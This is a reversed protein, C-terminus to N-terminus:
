RDGEPEKVKRLKERHKKVRREAEQRQRWNDYVKHRADLDRHVHELVKKIEDEPVGRAALADAVQEIVKVIFDSQERRPRRGERPGRGALERHVRELIATAEKETVGRRALIEVLHNHM